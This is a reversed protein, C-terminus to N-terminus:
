NPGSSPAESSLNLKLILALRVWQSPTFDGNTHIDLFNMTKDDFNAGSISQKGIQSLDRDLAPNGLTYFNLGFPSAAFGTHLTPCHCV